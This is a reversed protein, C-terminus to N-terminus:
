RLKEEVDRTLMKFNEQFIINEGLNYAFKNSFFIRLVTLLLDLVLFRSSSLLWLTVDGCCISLSPSSSRRFYINCGVLVIFPEFLFLM